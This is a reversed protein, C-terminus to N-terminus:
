FAHARWPLALFRLSHPQIVLLRGQQVDASRTVFSGRPILTM